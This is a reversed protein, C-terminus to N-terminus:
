KSLFSPLVLGRVFRIDVLVTLIQLLIIPFLLIGLACNIQIAPLSSSVSIIIEQASYVPLIIRWEERVELLLTRAYALHVESAESELFRSSTHNIWECGLLECDKICTSPLLWYCYCKGNRRVQLTRNRQVWCCKSYWAFKNDKTEVRQRSGERAPLLPAKRGHWM